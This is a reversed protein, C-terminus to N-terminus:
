ALGLQQLLVHVLDRIQPMAAIVAVAGLVLTLVFLLRNLRLSESASVLMSVTAMADRHQRETELLDEARHRITDALHKTLTPLPEPTAVEVRLVPPAVTMSRSKQPGTRAKRSETSNTETTKAAATTLDYDRIRSLIHDPGPNFTAGEFVRWHGNSLETAVPEVDRVFSTVTARLTDLRRIDWKRTTTAGMTDRSQSVADHMGLLLSDTAHLMLTMSMADDIRNLWGRPTAGGYADQLGDSADSLFDGRRGALWWQYRAQDHAPTRLRLGPWDTSDWAEHDTDLRAVWQWRSFQETRVLPVSVKTTIFVCTPYEGGLLGDAFTGPFHRRMWEACEHNLAELAHEMAERRQNNPDVYGLSHRRRRLKTKYSAKLAHQIATAAEDALEFRIAITTLSPTVNELWGHARKVAAPLDTQVYDAGFISEGRRTFFGLPATGGAYAGSRYRRVTDAISDDIVRHEGVHLAELGSVLGNLYSPPYCECVWIAEVILEEDDPMRGESNIKDDLTQWEKLSSVSLLTQRVPWPLFRRGARSMALREMRSWLDHDPQGPGTGGGGPGAPVDGTTQAM